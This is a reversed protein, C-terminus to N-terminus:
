QKGWVIKWLINSIFQTFYLVKAKKPFLFNTLFLLFMQSVIKSVEALSIFSETSYCKSFLKKLFLFKCSFAFYLLFWNKGLLHFRQLVLLVRRFSCLVEEASLSNKHFFQNLFFIKDHGAYLEMVWQYKHPLLKFFIHTAQM